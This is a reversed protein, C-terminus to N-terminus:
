RTPTQKPDANLWVHAKWPLKGGKRTFRDYVSAVTELVPRRRITGTAIGIGTPKGKRKLAQREKTRFNGTNSTTFLRRPRGRASNDVIALGMCRTDLLDRADALHETFRADLRAVEEVYERASTKKQEREEATLKRQKEIAELRSLGTQIRVVRKMVWYEEALAGLLAASLVGHEAAGDAGEPSIAPDIVVYAKWPLLKEPAFRSQVPKSIVLVSKEDMLADEITINTKTRGHRYRHMEEVGYAPFRGGKLVTRPSDSKRLELVALAIIRPGALKAIRDLRSDFRKRIAALAAKKGTKARPVSAMGARIEEVRRLVYYEEAISTLLSAALVGDQELWADEETGLMDSLLWGVGGGIMAVVVLIAVAVCGFGMVGDRGM